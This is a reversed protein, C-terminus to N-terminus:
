GDHPRALKYAKIYSPTLEMAVCFAAAQYWQNSLSLLIALLAILFVISM